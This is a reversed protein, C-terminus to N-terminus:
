VPICLRNFMQIFRSKIIIIKVQQQHDYKLYYCITLVIFYCMSNHLLWFDFLTKSKCNLLNIWLTIMNSNWHQFNFLNIFFLIHIFVFYYNFSYIFCCSINLYIFSFFFIYIYVIYVFTASRAQSFHLYCM